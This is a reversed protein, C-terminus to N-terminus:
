ELQTGSYSYLRLNKSSYAGGNGNNLILTINHTQGDIPIDQVLIYESNTKSFINHTTDTTLSDLDSDLYSFGNILREIKMSQSALLIDRSTTDKGDILFKYSALTGIDSNFRADTNDTPCLCVVVVSTNMPLYFTQSTYNGGAPIEQVTIGQYEWMRYYPSPTIQKKYAEALNYGFKYNVLEWKNPFDVAYTWGNNLGMCYLAMGAAQGPITVVQNLTLVAKGGTYTISALNGYSETVNARGVVLAPQSVWCYFSTNDYNGTSTLTGGVPINVTNPTDSLYLPAPTLYVNAGVPPNGNGPIVASFVAVTNTNNTSPLLNLLTTSQGWIIAGANYIEVEQGIYFNQSIANTLMYTQHTLVATLPVYAPNAGGINGGDVTITTVHGAAVGVATVNRNAGVNAFNLVDGIAVPLMSQPVPAALTFITNGGPFSGAYIALTGAGAGIAAGNVVVGTVYGNVITKSVLLRQGIDQFNINDTGETFTFLNPLVATTFTFVNNGIVNGAPFTGAINNFGLQTMTQTNLAGVGTTSWAFQPVRNTVSRSIDDLQIQMRIDSYKMLDRVELGFGDLIKRLPVRLSATLRKSPLVGENYLERWQSYLPELGTGPYSQANGSFFQELLAETVSLEYPALNCFLTNKFPCYMRDRGDLTLRVSYIASSADRGNSLAVNVIGGLNGATNTTETINMRINLYGKTPDILAPSIQFTIINNSTSTFPPNENSYIKEIEM